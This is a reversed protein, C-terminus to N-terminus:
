RYRKDHNPMKEREEQLFTILIDLQEKSTALHRGSFSDSLFGHAGNFFLLHEKKVHYRYEDLSMTELDGMDISDLYQKIESM